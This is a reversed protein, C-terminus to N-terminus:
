IRLGSISNQQNGYATLATMGHYDIPHKKKKTIKNDKPANLRGNRMIKKDKSPCFISGSKLYCFERM